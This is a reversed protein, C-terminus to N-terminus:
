KKAIYIHSSYEQTHMGSINSRIGNFIGKVFGSLTLRGTLYKESLISVYIADLRMPVIDILTFDNKNLLTEMNRKSFHWLHRPVDYGAWYDKYYNGDWSKHNPVAIFLTGNEGLINKLNHLTEDLNHVHELVHWLTIANFFNKSDLSEISPVIVTKINENANERAVTSPEIGHCQWGQRKKVNLFEGTGCGFDLISNDSKDHTYQNVLGAKWQLTFKRASIYFKDFLNKDKKTHSTYTDSLYYQTLHELSPRPNTILLKCTPCEVLNFNEKSISHDLCTLFPTFNKAECIPCEHIETM